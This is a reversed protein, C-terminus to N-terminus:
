RALVEVMFLSISPVFTVLLLASFAVLIFPVLEFYIARLDIKFLSQFMFINLGVPPTFVGIALNMVMIVGFHTPNVGISQAIPLLVPALVLIASGPDLFCGVVLLLLNIILLTQWPTLEMASVAATITGIAGSITLLWGMFAAVSVILFLIATLFMTRGAMDVCDRLTVERYILTSVIFAYVSSVGAAETPSFIGGYIGVFILAIMGFAWISGLSARVIERFKANLSSNPTEDSSAVEAAHALRLRLGIYVSFAVAMVLGPGIGAAFLDIISTETVIGYLIFAISPPILSGIGGGAIVIAAAFGHNYGSQLMKPYSLPGVTAVAATSSGSIAGFITSFSISSLGLGARAGGMVLMVWNLLRESVGGRSMMDGAFVFFPLALFSGKNVSDFMVQHLIVHPLGVEFVVLSIAAILVCLFIPFGLLLAIVMGTLILGTM